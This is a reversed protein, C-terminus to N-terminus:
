LIWADWPIRSLILLLGIFNFVSIHKLKSTEDKARKSKSYGVTILVIGLLMMLPHELAYLRSISSKMTEGSLNSIGLPSIFYLLFGAVMQIHMAILGLLAFNRNRKSFNKTTLLSHITFVVALFIFLLALYAISSHLHKIGIYM